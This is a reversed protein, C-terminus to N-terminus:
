RQVPERNLGLAALSGFNKIGAAKIASEENSFGQAKYECFAKRRKDLAM